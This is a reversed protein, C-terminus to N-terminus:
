KNKKNAFFGSFFMIIAFIVSIAIIMAACHFFFEDPLINIIEDKNPDFIWYDNNFALQHFKIFCWEWNLGILIGLVSPITITFIAGLKLFFYDKARVKFFIAILSIIFSVFFVIQIIVFIDRVEEFHIQGETSMALGNFSLAENNFISNYNILTNYNELILDQSYGSSEALNLNEVEMYYLPRCNLTFVVAFSITFIFLVLSSLIDITRKM